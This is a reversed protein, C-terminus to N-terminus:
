HEEMEEELDKCVEEMLDEQHHKEEYILDKNLSTAVSSDQLECYELGGVLWGIRTFPPLPCKCTSDDEKIFVMLTNTNPVPLVAYQGTCATENPRACSYKEQHFNSVAFNREYAFIQRRCNKVINAEPMIFALGRGVMLLSNIIVSLILSFAKTAFDMVFLSIKHAASKPKDIEACISDYFTRNNYYEKEVLIEFVASNVEGFFISEATENESYLVYGKHDLLYTTWNGDLSLGDLSQKIKASIYTNDIRAGLVALVLQDVESGGTEDTTISRSLHIPKGFPRTVLLTEAPFKDPDASFELYDAINKAIGRRYDTLNVTSWLLGNTTILFNGLKHASEDNGEWKNYVSKTIMLDQALSLLRPDACSEPDKVCQVVADKNMTEETFPRIFLKDYNLNGLRGELNSTDMTVKVADNAPIVLQYKVQDITGDIIREIIKPGIKAIPSDTLYQMPYLVESMEEVEVQALTPVIESSLLRPHNIVKGNRLSIIGYALSGADLDFNSTFDDLLIDSGLVGQLLHLNTTENRKFVPSTLIISKRTERSNYYTVTPQSWRVQGEVASIDTVSRAAVTDFFMDVVTFWDGINKVFVYHGGAECTMKQLGKNPGPSVPSAFDLVLLKLSMDKVREKLEEVDFEMMGDTFLIAMRKNEEGETQFTSNFFNEKVNQLAVNLDSRNAAEFDKMGAIFASKVNEDAQLPGKGFCEKLETFKNNFLFVNFRYNSPILKILHKAFKMITDLTIGLVSGSRDIMLAIDHKSSAADLFWPQLRSDYMDHKRPWTQEPSFRLVAHTTGIFYRDDSDQLETVSAFAADTWNVDNQTGNLNTKVVPVFVEIPHGPEHYWQLYTTINRKGDKKTAHAGVKTVIALLNDKRKQTVTDVHKSIGSIINDWHADEFPAVSVKVQSYSRKLLKYSTNKEHIESLEESLNQFVLVM